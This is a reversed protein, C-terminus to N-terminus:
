KFLMDCGPNHLSIKCTGCIIDSNVYFLNLLHQKFLYACYNQKGTTRLGLRTEPSLLMKNSQTKTIGHLSQVSEEWKSLICHLLRRVVALSFDCHPLLILYCVHVHILYRSDLTQDQDTRTRSLSGRANELLLVALM